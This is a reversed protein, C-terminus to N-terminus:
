FEYGFRDFITKDKEYVLEILEDSYYKRYHHHRTTNVPETSRIISEQSPTLNSKDKLVSVLDETLTEFRMYEIDNSLGTMLDFIVSYHGMGEPYGIFSEKLMKGIPTFKGSGWPRGKLGPPNKIHIGNEKPNILVKLSDNVGTDGFHELLYPCKNINFFYLSVYWDFPNRICSIIPTSPAYEHLTTHFGLNEYSQPYLERLVQETFQGGTKLIHLYTLGEVKFV